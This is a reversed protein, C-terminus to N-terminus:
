NAYISKLFDEKREGCMVFTYYSPELSSYEQETIPQDNYYYGTVQGLSGDSTISYTCSLDYELTFCNNEYKYATTHTTYSVDDMGYWDDYIYGSRENYGFESGYTGYSFNDESYEPDVVYKAIIAESGNYTYVSFYYYENDVILEPIDDDDIYILSFLYEDENIDMEKVFDYYVSKWTNDALFYKDGLDGDLNTISPYGIADCIDQLIALDINNGEELALLTDYYRICCFWKNRGSEFETHYKVFQFHEENVEIMKEYGLFEWETDKLYLRESAVGENPQPAYTIRAYDAYIKVSGNNTDASCSENEAAEVVEDLTSTYESYDIKEEPQYNKSLYDTISKVTKDFDTQTFDQGLSEIPVNTYYKKLLYNTYKGESYISTLFGNEYNYLSSHSFENDNKVKTDTLRILNNNSDYERIYMYYTSLDKVDYVIEKTQSQNNDYEYADKSSLSGDSLYVIHEIINRNEDLKNIATYILEDDKNYKSLTCTKKDDSYTYDTYDSVIGDNDSTEVRIPYNDEDYSYESYESIVGNRDYKDVRVLNNNEDYSSESHFLVSCSSDYSFYSTELGSENYQYTQIDTASIKQIINKNEDYTYFCWTLESIDATVRLDVSLEIQNILNESKSETAPEETTTLSADNSLVSASINSDSSSNTDPINTCASLM